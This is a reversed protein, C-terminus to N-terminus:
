VNVMHNVRHVHGSTLYEYLEIVVEYFPEVFESGIEARVTGLQDAAAGLGHEIGLPQGLGVAFELGRM